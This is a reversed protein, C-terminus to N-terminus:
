WRHHDYRPIWEHKGTKTMQWMTCPNLTSTTDCTIVKDLVEYKHSWMYCAVITELAMYVIMKLHSIQLCHSCYEYQLQWKNRNIDCHVHHVQQIQVYTMSHRHKSQKREEEKKNKKSHLNHHSMERCAHDIITFTYFPRSHVLTHLLGHLHGLLISKKCTRLRKLEFPAKSQAVLMCQSSSPQHWLNTPLM